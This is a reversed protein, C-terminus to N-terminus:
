TIFCFGFLHLMMPNLYELQATVSPYFSACFTSFLKTSFGGYRVGVDKDVSGSSDQSVVESLKQKIILFEIRSIIFNIM